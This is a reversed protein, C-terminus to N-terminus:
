VSFGSSSVPEVDDTMPSVRDSGCQAAAVAEAEAGSSSFWVGRCCWPPPLVPTAAVGPHCGLSQFARWPPHSRLREGPQPSLAVAEEPAVGAPRLCEVGLGANERAACTGNAWGGGGPADACDSM